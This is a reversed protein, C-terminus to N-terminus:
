ASLRRMPAHTSHATLVPRNRGLTASLSISTTNISIVNFIL